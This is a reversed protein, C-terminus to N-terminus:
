KDKSASIRFSRVDLSAIKKKNALVRYASKISFITVM